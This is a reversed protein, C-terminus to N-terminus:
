SLTEYVLLKLLLQRWLVFFAARFNQSSVIKLRKTEVDM